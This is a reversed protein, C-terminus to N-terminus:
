GLLRDLFSKKFKSSLKEEIILSQYGEPEDHILHPFLIYKLKRGYHFNLYLEEISELELYERYNKFLDYKLITFSPFANLDIDNDLMNDFCFLHTLDIGECEKSNSAIFLRSEPIGFSELYRLFNRYAHRNEEGM